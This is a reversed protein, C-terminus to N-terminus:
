RSTDEFRNLKWNWQASIDRRGVILKPTPQERQIEYELFYGAVKRCIGEECFALYPAPLTLKPKHNEPLDELTAVWEGSARHHAGVSMAVARGYDKALTFGTNRFHNFLTSTAVFTIVAAGIKWVKLARRGFILVPLTVVIGIATAGSLLIGFPIPLIGSGVVAGFMCVVAAPLTCGFAGARQLPSSVNETM